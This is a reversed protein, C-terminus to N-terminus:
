HRVAVISGLPGSVNQGDLTVFTFGSGAEVEHLFGLGDDPGSRNDYLHPAVKFSGVRVEHWGDPLQVATVGTTTIEITMRTMTARGRAAPEQQNM